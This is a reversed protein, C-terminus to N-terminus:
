LLPTVSKPWASCQFPRLHDTVAVGSGPPVPIFWTVTSSSEVQVDAFLQQATPSKPRRNPLSSLRTSCQFPLRHDRSNTTLGAPVLLALRFAISLTRQRDALLQM